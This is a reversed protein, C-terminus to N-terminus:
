AKSPSSWLSQVKQLLYSINYKQPILGSPRLIIVSVLVLGYILLRYQAAFHLVEPLIILLTAGAVVGLINGVGGIIIILVVLLSEQFTFSEPSVFRQSAGFIVGGAGGIAASIAFATLKLNTTNIGLGRVVDQDERMARWTKGLITREMWFVAACVIVALVLLLWYFNVPSTLPLDFIRARDLAAIGQPGNTFEDANNIVIRIIEGFSLTVIALYDGRLKLVPFGLLIGAFAGAIAGVILVIIFPLHIGFHGSALFAYCYAGVAYFAIFGLDLLGVYGVVLNLGVALIIYLLISNVVRVYYPPMSPVLSLGVMIAVLLAILGLRRIILPTAM